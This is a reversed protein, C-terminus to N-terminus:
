IAKDMDQTAISNVQTAKMQFWVLYNVSIKHPKQGYGTHSYQSGTHSKDINQTAISNLKHPKCLLWVFYNVVITKQPKRGYKTHIIEMDPTAKSSVQTAPHHRINQTARCVPKHNAPKKEQEEGDITCCKMQLHCWRRTIDVTDMFVWIQGFIWDM